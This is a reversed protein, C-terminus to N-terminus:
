GLGGLPGTAGRLCVSDLRLSRAGGGGLLMLHGFLGALGGLGSALFRLEHPLMGLGRTSLGLFGAPRGFRRPLVGFRRPLGVLRRTLRQLPRPGHRFLRPLRGLGRSLGCLVDPSDVLLLSADGLFYTSRRVFIAMQGSLLAPKV